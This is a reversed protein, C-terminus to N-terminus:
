KMCIVMSVNSHTLEICKFEVKFGASELPNGLHKILISDHDPPPAQGTLRFLWAALRQLYSGGIIQAFPVIIFRGEQSLVRFVEQHTKPDFIYESPFTSVIDSFTHDPFPLHQAYGNILRSFKLKNLRQSAIKGMQLSADLGVSSDGRQALMQQLHGTGHGIELVNQGKIYPLATSVWEYWMGVSVIAAVLDYSWALQHYLLRFFYKLFSRSYPQSNALKEDM